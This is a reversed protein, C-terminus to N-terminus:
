PVAAHSYLRHGSGPLTAALVSGTTSETLVLRHTQPEFAVNTVAPGVGGRVFHSIEGLPNLVFAGGLSAHAVVLCGREDFALGDPGSTGFFRQFEGVKSTACGGEFLPVRWVANARTVAVFLVAGDPQLALGNPSPVNALLMSLGGDAALRYVRGTPDHLGTQGQDTFYCNGAADFTLDNLGKFSESHRHGLLSEPQGSGNALQEASLRLLGRRYDAIWLSGDAHLALGNPWGDYEAVLTWRLAADVRFIRGYPIDCVYLNGARDFSPGELFCDLVDGPKNADVWDTRRPRRFMDPLRTSVCADITRPPAFSLSWM